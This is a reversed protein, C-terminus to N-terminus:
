SGPGRATRAEAQPVWGLGGCACLVNPPAQVGALVVRGAGGCSPCVVADPPREPRLFALEPYDQAAVALAIRRFHAEELIAPDQPPDSGVFLLEGDERLGVFGTWDLYVPLLRYRAALARTGSPEPDPGAVYAALLRRQLAPDLRSVAM